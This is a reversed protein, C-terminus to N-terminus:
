GNIDRLLKDYLYVKMFLSIVSKCLKSYDGKRPVQIHLIHLHHSSPCIPRSNHCQLHCPLFSVM